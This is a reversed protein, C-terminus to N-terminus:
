GEDSYLTALEGVTRFERFGQAFPDRGTREQLEVVIAALDLSDIPVDGGLLRTSEDMEQSEYGKEELVRNVVQPIMTMLDGRDNM